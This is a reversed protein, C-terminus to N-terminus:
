KGTAHGCLYAGRWRKKPVAVIPSVWPTPEDESVQEIIDDKELAIIADKVKNRIHYPIRRQPQAKHNATPDINQQVTQEKLKRLGDFVPANKQLIDHLKKDKTPNDPMLQSITCVYM